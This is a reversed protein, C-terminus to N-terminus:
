STWRGAAVAVMPRALFPAARVLGLAAAALRPRRALALLLGALRRRAASEERLARALRRAAAAPETGHLLAAAHRGGLWGDRLAIAVGCGLIPDVAGTADGLLFSARDALRRPRPTDLRRAEAPTRLEGLCTRAAPLRDLAEELLAAPTGSGGGPAELGTPDRDLLVAVNLEQGPLPTLYVEVGPALHVEVRDLPRAERFRARLGLRGPRPHPRAPERLWPALHGSAGDAVALLRTRLVPERRGLALRFGGAPDREAQLSGTERRIGPRAAVAQDLVAQLVPRPLALGPHPLDLEVPPRGPLCYRIGPLPRGRDLAAAGALERLVAVGSPMIGEGCPKDRPTRAADVLLIREVGAAAAALACAAGAPGAGAVALDLDFSGSM